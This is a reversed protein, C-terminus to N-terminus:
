NMSCLPCLFLTQKEVPCSVGTLFFLSVFHRGFALSLDDFGVNGRRHAAVM